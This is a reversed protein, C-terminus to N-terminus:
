RGSSHFAGTFTQKVFRRISAPLAAYFPTVFWLYRMVFAGLRSPHRVHVTDTDVVQLAKSKLDDLTLGDPLECVMSTTITAAGEHGAIAPFLREFAHAVTGDTQGKEASFLDGYDHRSLAQLASSRFWFMTGAAFYPTDSVLPELDVNMHTAIKRLSRMNRGIHRDLSCLSKDPAVIGIRPNSAIRAVIANVQDPDPLLSQLLADRWSVGDLRHLSKKGHLKLGVDFPEALRLAELFPLVDRGRNETSYTAMTVLYESKPPDFQDPDSTTTLIIRYPMAMRQQLRNRIPAWTDPYHIHVFVAVSTM